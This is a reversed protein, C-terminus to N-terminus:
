VTIEWFWVQASRGYYENNDRSGGMVRGNWVDIHDGQNGTGWFNQCFIIGNKGSIGDLVTQQFVAQTVGRGKRFKTPTGLQRSLALWDALEQARIVHNTHGFWCKVKNCGNMNVNAGMLSVSMKIACQNDFAPTGDAKKCPYNEPPNQNLPHSNWLEQFNIILM